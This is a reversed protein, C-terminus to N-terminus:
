GTKVFPKYFHRNTFNKMGQIVSITDQANIMTVEIEETIMIDVDITQITTMPELDTVFFVHNHFEFYILTIEFRLEAVTLINDFEM